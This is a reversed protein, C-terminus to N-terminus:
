GERGYKATFTDDDKVKFSMFVGDKRNCIVYKRDNDDRELYEGEVLIIRGGVNVNMRSGYVDVSVVTGEIDRGIYRIGRDMMETWDIHGAIPPLIYSARKQM